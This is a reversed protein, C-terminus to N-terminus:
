RTTDFKTPDIYVSEGVVVIGPNGLALLSNLRISDLGNAIFIRTKHTRRVQEAITPRLFSTVGERTFNFNEPVTFTGTYKM